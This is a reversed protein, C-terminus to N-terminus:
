GKQIDITQRIIQQWRKRPHMFTSEDSLVQGLLLRTIAYLPPIGENPSMKEALSKGSDIPTDSVYYLLRIKIDSSITGLLKAQEIARLYHSGEMEMGTAHWLREYFLLLEENQLLTGMVTLMPGVHVKRSTLRKLMSPTIDDQAVPRMEGQSNEDIVHTPWLISGRSGSVLGGAKGLINVSRVRHGFTLLLLRLLHEAQLGFCYDINVLLHRKPKREKTESFSLLDDFCIASKKKLKSLDILQVSIGTVEREKLAIIGFEREMEVAKSMEDPHADFYAKVIPYLRDMENEFDDELIQRANEKAWNLFENRKSHVYPSLCNKVSHQNSSVIDVVLDDDQLAGILDQARRQVRFMWREDGSAAFSTVSPDLFVAFDGHHIVADLVNKLASGDPWVRQIGRLDDQSLMGSSGLVEEEVKRFDQGEEIQRIGKRLNPVTQGLPRLRRHFKKMEIIHVCLNTIIDLFDSQLERLLIFLKGPMVEWSTRRRDDTRVGHGPSLASIVFELDENSDCVDKRNLFSEDNTAVPVPRDFDLHDRQKLVNLVRRSLVVSYASTINQPLRRISYSWASYDISHADNVHAHLAPALARYRELIQDLDVRNDEAHIVSFLTATFALFNDFIGLKHRFNSAMALAFRTDHEELLEQLAKGPLRWVTSVSGGNKAAKVQLLRPVQFLAAREGFYTGPTLEMDSKVVGDKDLVLFSGSEVLYLGDDIEDADLLVSGPIVSYLVMSEEVKSKKTEPLFSFPVISSLLGEKSQSSEVVKSIGVKAKM